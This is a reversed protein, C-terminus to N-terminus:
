FKDEIFSIISDFDNAILQAHNNINQRNINESFQIFYQAQNHKKVEYDTYGDGIIINNGIINKAITVKGLDKSLPNNANISIINNNDDYIFDNAYIHNLPIKFEKVIPYIIETFGGSVIYCNQYNKHFFSINKSFSPTILKSINDTVIKIHEKNAKLMNIRKILADAFSIEGNMAQKTIANIKKTLDNTSNNKSILESLVDLTEVTVFTSDFDILLNINRTKLFSM